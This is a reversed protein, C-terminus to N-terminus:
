FAQTNFVQREGREVLPMMRAFWDQFWPEAYDARMAESAMTYSAMDAFDQEVQVTFMPGTADTYIRQALVEPTRLRDRQELFLAALADGQGYRAQFSLRETIM